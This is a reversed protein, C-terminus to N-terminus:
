PGVVTQLEVNLAPAILSAYEVTLPRRGKLQNLLSKYPLGTQRHLELVSYGAQKRLHDLRAAVPIKNAMDELYEGILSFGLTQYM